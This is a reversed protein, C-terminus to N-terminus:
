CAPEATPDHKEDHSTDTDSDTPPVECFREAILAAIVVLVSAVAGGVAPPVAFEPVVPRTLMFVVFGTLYGVEFAGAVAMAKAARLVTVASGRLERFVSGPTLSRRVGFGLVVIVVAFMALTATFSWPVAYVSGGNSVLIHDLVYGVPAGVLAALILVLPRTRKM